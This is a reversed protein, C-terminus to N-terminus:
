RLSCKLQGTHTLTSTPPAAILTSIFSARPVKTIQRLSIKRLTWKTTM